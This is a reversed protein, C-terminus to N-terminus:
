QAPPPNGAGASFSAVASEPAEAAAPTPMAPRAPAASKKLDQVAASVQETTPEGGGASPGTLYCLFAQWTMERPPKRSGVPRVDIGKEGFTVALREGALEIERVIPRTFKQM